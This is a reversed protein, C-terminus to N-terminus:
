AYIIRGQNINLATTVIRIIEDKQDLGAGGSNVFVNDIAFSLSHPNPIITVIVNPFGGTSLAREVRTQAAAHSQANITGIIERDPEMGGVEIGRGFLEPLPSIIVFLIFFGYIARVFKSMHSDTLLLEVLVGVVVVGAISLLWTSM